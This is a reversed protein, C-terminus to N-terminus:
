RVAIANPPSAVGQHVHIPASTFFADYTGDAACDAALADLDWMEGLPLGLLPLASAHLFGWGKQAPNMEVTPNDAALASVHLDWLFAPLDNGAPGPHPANAEAHARRGDADLARYWALWGTRLLLIDGTEVPTGQDAM